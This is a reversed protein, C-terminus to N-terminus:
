FSLFHGVKNCFACYMFVNLRNLPFYPIEEVVPLSLFRLSSPYAAPKQVETNVGTAPSEEEMTNPVNDIVITPLEPHGGIRDIFM